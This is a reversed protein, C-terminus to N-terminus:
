LYVVVASVNDSTGKEIAMSCLTKAADGASTGQSRVKAVVKAVQFSDVVEWLGDTASVICNGPEAQVSFIDPESTVGKSTAFPGELSRAVGYQYDGVPLFWRSASCEPLSYDFGEEQGARLRNRENENKPTHDTTQFVVKGENDFLLSRSDGCNLFCVKGTCEDLAAVSATTGAELDGAGTNADLKGELADYNAVCDTESCEQQYDQTITKWAEALVQDVAVNENRFLGDKVLGPMEESALTSAATGLHGDYVGAVLVSRVSDVIEHLVFRDEQSERRGKSTWAGCQPVIKSVIPNKPSSAISPGSEIPSKKRDFHLTTFKSSAPQNKLLDVAKEFGREAVPIEGVGQLRDGIEFIDFKEAQGGPVIGKVFVQGPLADKTATHWRLREENSFGDDEDEHAVNAEALVLGLPVNRKFTAVFHLPRSIAETAKLDDGSDLDDVECKESIELVSQLFPGDDRLKSDTDDDALVLRLRLLADQSSMRDWPKPRLMESILRWLGPREGLVVLAEELGRPRVKSAMAQNLWADLDWNCSRLQQHFGADTREDLFNFLLQCYLLAASFVDFHEPKDKPDIFLEPAAYIPSIAVRNGNELGVCKKGFFGGGKAPELDAASGFDILYLGNKNVLLNGPKIDRHVIKKSHIFSLVQLLSEFTVDLVQGLSVDSSVSDLGLAHELHFLHHPHTKDHQKDHDLKMLDCLCPAAEKTSKSNDGDKTVVNFLMWQRGEADVFDSGLYLPIQDNTGLKQYMHEEIQWYYHCREFKRKPNETDAVEDLTLSRKGIKIDDDDSVLWCYHVTGFSGKGIEDGVEVTTATQAAFM